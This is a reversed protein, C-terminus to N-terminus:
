YSYRVNCILDKVLWPVVTVIAPCGHTWHGQFPDRSLCVCSASSPLPVGTAMRNWHMSQPLSPPEAKGCATALTIRPITGLRSCFAACFVWWAATPWPHLGTNIPYFTHKWCFLMVYLACISNAFIIWSLIPGPLTSLDRCIVGGGGGTQIPVSTRCTNVGLGVRKLNQWLM